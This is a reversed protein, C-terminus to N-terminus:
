ATRGSGAPTGDAPDTATARTAPRGAAGIRAFRGYRGLRDHVVQDAVDAATM